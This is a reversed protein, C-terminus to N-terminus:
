GKDALERRKSDEDNYPDDDESDSQGVETFPRKSPRPGKNKEVLAGGAPARRPKRVAKRKIAPAADLPNVIAPPAKAVVAIAPQVRIEGADDAGWSSAYLCLILILILNRM